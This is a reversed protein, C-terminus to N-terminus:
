GSVAELQRNIVERQRWSIMRSIEEDFQKAEEDTLRIAQERNPLSLLLSVRLATPPHTSDVQWLESASKEQHSRMTEDSIAHIAKAIEPEIAGSPQRLAIRRCVADVEAFLYTKELGKIMAHSGALTAALTDALYEARQSERFVLLVLGKALVYIFESVALLVLEFPIGVLSILPGFILGEGSNGISTPRLAEAWGALTNVAGFFFMGRMPDGNAGHSLEHAIIALREERSLIAMFPAGLSMYRNQRWGATIYSAGFDASAEIGAVPPAGLHAAFRRTVSFIAPYSAEELLYHPPKAVRPRAVWALLLLVSGGLVQFINDWASFLMALGAIGLVLGSVHVLLALFTAALYSSSSRRIGSLDVTGEHAQRVEDYLKSALHRGLDLRLHRWRVKGSELSRRMSNKTVGLTRALLAGASHRWAPRASFTCRVRLGPRTAHRRREAQALLQADAAAYDRLRLPLQQSLAGVSLRHPLRFTPRSYPLRNAVWRSAISSTM